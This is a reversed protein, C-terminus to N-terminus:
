KEGPYKPYVFPYVGHQIKHIFNKSPMGIGPYAIKVLKNTYNFLKREGNIRWVFWRECQPSTM